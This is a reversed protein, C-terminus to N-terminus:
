TGPRLTPGQIKWVCTSRLATLFDGLVVVVVVVPKEMECPEPGRPRYVLSGVQYRSLHGDLAAYHITAPSGVPWEVKDVQKSFEDLVQM